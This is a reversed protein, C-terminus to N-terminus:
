EIEAEVVKKILGETLCITGANDGEWSVGEGNNYPCGEKQAYDCFLLKSGFFYDKKAENKEYHPCIKNTM